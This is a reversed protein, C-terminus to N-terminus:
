RSTAKKSSAAQESKQSSTQKKSPETKEGPKKPSKVSANSPKRGPSTRPDEEVKSLSMKQISSSQSSPIEGSSDLPSSIEIPPNASIVSPDAAPAAGHQPLNNQPVTLTEGSLDPEAPVVPIGPTQDPYITPIDAGDLSGTICTESSLWSLVDCSIWSMRAMEIQRLYDAESKGRIVQPTLIILLEKRSSDNRDYRFFNGLIPIDSLWPVRRSVTTNNTTILGGIIITQGSAASVTTEATTINTRPSRIVAGTASISVPVGEIEPGLESKEANVEMVVMGDPSIRPTVHLILGVDQPEVTNVQGVQNISTGTIQPVRQGVQIFAPQNDLTTIQPRSLIEVNKSQNLARLLVSVNESSASLVLGGFEVDPNQRNVAFHSLAQGGVNGRTALSQPTSANGLPRNNFNYGPDLLSGLLSRDFLLSDQLGLEIGFENLNDLEIEALIVQITVQPPQADLGEVLEIIQDFYRPTASIILANTTSEPVIVVESEIQTFPNQRGPAAQAVIRESRLFNNVANSVDLARSNKLRYVENVRQQSDTEDLRLLLAEIIRLDGTAGTAIISNTRVDVSFRVPALSTEGQATPLQPVTSPIQEPFLSRLLLVLDSADGNTIQFVKIQATAAPSEDLSRILQEVLPLSNAPGTIFIRNTRPDPTLRVDSLLGSAAVSKGDPGLMLMEIAASRQGGAGSAATIASTITQTVDAALANKLQIIKAQNVAASTDADLRLILEEVEQLDRPSANVILTNTRTNATITVDPGLGGRGNLFQRVTSEVQNASAHKLPFMRMQTAPAVSEDLREILKKAAAVAEGWGILLLANPKVLPTVSVRGQLPGTLDQLVDAVMRDLAEGQVNQLYIIEIAPATEGSLREIEEIIRLLEKVDADRGRLVLVDLDPLPDIQVDSSPRRMSEENSGETTESPADGPEDAAGVPIEPDGVQNVFGTERVKLGREDRSSRDKDSPKTAKRRVRESQKWVSIARGLVDPDVNQIPVFRVDEDAAGAASEDIHNLLTDFQRVLDEPGEMLCSRSASDFSLTISRRDGASYSLQNRGVDRLRRGLIRRISKQANESSSERFTYRLTHANAISPDNGVTGTQRVVKNKAKSNSSRSDESENGGSDPMSLRPTSDSTSSAREPNGAAATSRTRSGSSATAPVDIESILERTLEHVASDGTIRLEKREEDISIDVPQQQNGALDRLMRQCDAATVHQLRYTRTTERSVASDKGGLQEATIVSVSSILILLM